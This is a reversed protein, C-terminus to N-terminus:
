SLLVKPPNGLVLRHGTSVNRISADGTTEVGYTKVQGTSTLTELNGTAGDLRCSNGIYLSGNVVSLSTGGVPVSTSSGGVPYTGPAFPTNLVIGNGTSELSTAAAGVTALKSSTVHMAQALDVVIDKSHVGQIEAYLTKLSPTLERELSTRTVFGYVDFVLLVVLVGVAVYLLIIHTEMKQIIDYVM